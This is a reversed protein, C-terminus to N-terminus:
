FLRTSLGGAWRSELWVCNVTLSALVSQEKKVKGRLLPLKPDLISVQNVNSPALSNM